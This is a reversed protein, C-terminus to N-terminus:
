SGLKSDRNLKARAHRAKRISEKSAIAKSDPIISIVGSDMANLVFQKEAEFKTMVDALQVATDVWKLTVEEDVLLERIAAIVVRLRKNAVQGADRLLHSVLGNADDFWMAPMKLKHKELLNLTKTAPAAIELFLSRVWDM